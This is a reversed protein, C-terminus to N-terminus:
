APSVFVNTSAVGAVGSLGWLAPNAPTAHPGIMTMVDGSIAAASGHVSATTGLMKADGTPTLQLSAGGSTLTIGNSDITIAGWQNILQIKDPGFYASVGTGSSTNDATTYHVIAGNAKYLTRAQGTAAYVCTEGSKLNGYIGSNRTDRSAIIVDRDGHKLVVAQCAGGGSGQTPAAPLSAFGSAQWWEADDSDPTAGTADGIQAQIVKTTRNLVTVLVDAFDFLASFIDNRNM